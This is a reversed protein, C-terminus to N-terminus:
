RSDPEGEVRGKRRESVAGRVRVLFGYGAAAAGSVLLVWVGASAGTVTMERICLGYAPVVCVFMLTPLFWGGPDPSPHFGRSSLVVVLSGLMLVALVVRLEYGDHRQNLQSGCLFFSM